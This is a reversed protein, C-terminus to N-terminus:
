TQLKTSNTLNLITAIANLEFLMKEIFMYQMDNPQTNYFGETPFTTLFQSSFFTESSKQVLRINERLLDDCEYLLKFFREKKQIPLQEEMLENESNFNNLERTVRVIHTLLQYYNHYKKGSGWVPERMYRILSDFANSNKTEAIRKLKTWPQPTIGRYFTNQFYAFNREFAEAIFFPLLNKDWQPLLVFGATVALVTGILTAIIRMSLLSQAEQVNSSALLGILMLTIFFTALSYQKRLFYILFVASVFVLILRAETPFPLMLFGTGVLIGAITGVCRELGKKLTAGFYPQSVLIATFAIWYGHNEFFFHAILGGVWASVGIRIAYRVTFSDFNLLLKLNNLLYSPHLINLTQTLSYSLIVRQEEHASLLQLSRETLRAIRGSINVLKNVLLQEEASANEVQKLLQMQVIKMREVRSMVLLFEEDRMNFLFVQFRQGIQEITRFLAHIFVTINKEKTVKLLEDVTDSMQILLLGVLSASKRSQTLAFKEKEKKHVVEATEEFLALSDNIAERVKKEKLFIDRISSRGPQAGLGKGVVFALESLSAWIHAITVRYPKGTRIFLFSLMGVTMAWIGGVFAWLMRHKIESVDQLPYSSTIIFTIYVALALGAGRDGLNKFLGALFGVIFLGLLHMGVYNGALSGLLCFLIALFVGSILVRFRQAVNGKLEVLAICEAAIAMWQAEAMRNALAGWILPVTVSIALRFGWGWMPERSQAM